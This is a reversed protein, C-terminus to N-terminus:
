LRHLFSSTTKHRARMPWVCRVWIDQPFIRWRQTLVTLTNQCNAVNHIHLWKAWSLFSINPLLSTTSDKIGGWVLETTKLVFQIKSYIKFLGLQSVNITYLEKCQLKYGYSNKLKIYVYETKVYWKDSM